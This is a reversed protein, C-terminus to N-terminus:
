RRSSISTSWEASAAGKNALVPCFCRMQSDDLM